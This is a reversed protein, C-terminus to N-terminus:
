EQYALENLGFLIQCMDVMALSRHDAKGADRYNASQSELFALASETEVEDPPRNIAIQYARELAPRFDAAIPATSEVRKAFAEAWARTHPSNMILLAQPAVTTTPRQGQSVLPEPQDFVVMSSILESRKVMFYISRRPSMEDRTGPGFMTLNLKGSIALLSDRIAEGELRRPVRRVFLENTPDAKERLKFDAGAETTQMYVASTMLLKHLSKLKWGGRILEGALWDLLEPHSPKAGTHGFDNPTAVIGTGFHHQWLRNVAVRAAIAGAGQDVDIIWNALSRRRGSYQAGAPPSWQWQSQSDATPMLVQLFSQTAVGNKRDVSGRELFYSEPFFDAGQTHHRMPKYGEGCIMINTKASPEQKTHQDVKAQLRRWNADRKKWWEFLANQKEAPLSAMQEPSSAEALIDAIPPPLSDGDLLPEAVSTLSIRFRGLSHQTNVRFDLTITLPVGAELEFPQALTCVAAHDKGFQPDVAWGTTPNDDLSAAISLNSKNQEFDVDAKAIKLAVPEAGPTAASLSIKSLGFNGNAARGPGSKPLSADALAELRIGTIKRSSPRSEITYIDQDGNNGEALYSGDDLKKFSAGAKSKIESLELVTWTKAARDGAGISRFLDSRLADEYTKVEALLSDQEKRWQTMKPSNSNRELDVDINTRVTLTFTSLLRYYDRTPIPDFKHDHCRACGITLGMFASGTTSLMDDLADYRTREVENATIQTPFVGAGLFGTAALALPNDPEFEDGALQWEIFKTYPLDENLAQIVFDRFAWAGPRDYDQEFGHSEAFRAVDLWHRAWREGYHPNDLLRDILAPWAASSEDNVFADAEEPTPPLGLLDLYARRVLNRKSAEPSLELGKAKAKAVIFCDVDTRVGVALKGEDLNPPTVKALPQFSWWSKDKEEITASKKQPKNAALAFEYPAGNDIWKAILSIQEASLKAANDPMIPEEAHTILKYLQSVQSQFPVVVVGSEGGELLGERTALDFEGEIKEGGHCKLCNEKLIGAIQKQFQDLGETMRQAHDAPLASVVAPRPRDAADVAEEDDARVTMRLPGFVALLVAALILTLIDVNTRQFRHFFDIM